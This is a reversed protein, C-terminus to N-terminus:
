KDNIIREIASSSLYFENCLHSIRDSYTWDEMFNKMYNWLTKIKADRIELELKENIFESLEKRYKSV